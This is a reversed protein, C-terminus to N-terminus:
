FEAARQVKFFTASIFFMLATCVGFVSDYQITVFSAVLQALLGGLFGAAATIGVSLLLPRVEVPPGEEEESVVPAGRQYLLFLGAGFGLSLCTQASTKAIAPLLSIAVFIFLNQQLYKKKPMELVDALFGPIRILPEREEQDAEDSLGGFNVQNGLRYDMIVDKAIELDIRRKVNDEYDELLREYASMIEESKKGVVPTELSPVVAFKERPVTFKPYIPSIYL